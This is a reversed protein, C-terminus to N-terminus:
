NNAVFAGVELLDTGGLMHGLEVGGVVEQGTAGVLLGSYTGPTVVGGGNIAGGTATGSFSGDAISTAALTLDAATFPTGGVETRNTVSGSVQGTGFNADLQADGSIQAVADMNTNALAALYQGTYNATGTTPLVTASRRSFVVGAAGSGTSTPSTVWAVDGAGSPTAKYSAVTGSASDLFALFGNADLAPYRVMTRNVGGINVALLNTSSDFNATTTSPIPGITRTVASPNTSACGAVALLAPLLLEKKM